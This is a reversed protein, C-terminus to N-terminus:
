SKCEQVPYRTIYSLYDGDVWRTEVVDRYRVKFNYWPTKVREVRAVEVYLCTRVEREEIRWKGTLLVEEGYDNIFTVDDGFDRCGHVRKLMEKHEQKMYEM